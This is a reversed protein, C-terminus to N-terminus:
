EIFGDLESGGLKVFKVFDLKSLLKLHEDEVEYFVPDYNMFVDEIMKWFDLGMNVYGLEWADETDKFRMILYDKRTETKESSVETRIREMLNEYPATTFELLIDNRDEEKEYDVDDKELDITEGYLTDEFDEMFDNSM